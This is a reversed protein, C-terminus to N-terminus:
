KAALSGSRATARLWLEVMCNCMLTISSAQLRKRDETLRALRERDIIGFKVLYSDPGFLRALVEMNHCFYWQSVGSFSGQNHRRMIEGPLRGLFAQKQVAKRILQGGYPLLRYANPISWRLEGYLTRDFHPAVSVIGNPRFDNVDLALEQLIGSRRPLDKNDLVAERARDTYHYMQRAAPIAEGAVPRPFPSLSGFLRKTSIPISLSHWLFQARERIGIGVLDRRFDIGMEDHHSFVSDGYSGSMLCEVGDARAALIAERWWRYLEHVYPVSFDWEEDVLRSGALRYDGVDICTLRDPIGLHEAVLRAYPSEDAAPFSPAAWHYLRLDCGADVLCWALSASDTGGGSLMLGIRRFARARKAVAAQVLVRAYEGWKELSMRQPRAYRSFADYAERVAENENLLLIEGPLLVEIGRYPIASEGWSILAVSAFDLDGFPDKVIDMFNTSWTIIGNEIRYYLQTQSELSRVLVVQRPSVIAGTYSGEIDQLHRFRHKLVHMERSDAADILVRECAAAADPSEGMLVSWVSGAWTVLTGSENVWTDAREVVDPGLTQVCWNATPSQIAPLRMPVGMRATTLKLSTPGHWGPDWRGAFGVFDAAVRHPKDRGEGALRLVLIGTRAASPLVCDYWCYLAAPCM